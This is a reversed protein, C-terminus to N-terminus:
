DNFSYNEWQNVIDNKRFDGSVVKSLNNLILDKLEEGKINSVSTIKKEYFTISKTKINEITYGQQSWWWMPMRKNNSNKNPPVFSSYRHYQQSYERPFDDFANQVNNTDDSEKLPNNEIMGLVDDTDTTIGLMFKVEYTKDHKMFEEMHKTDDDTLITILGYALPDLRNCFAVKDNDYKKILDGCTVGIPKYEQIIM